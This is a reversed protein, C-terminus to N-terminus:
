VWFLYRFRCAKRKKNRAERMNHEYEEKSEKSIREIEEKSSTSEEMLLQQYELTTTAEFTPEPEIYTGVGQIEHINITCKNTQSVGDVFSLVLDIIM